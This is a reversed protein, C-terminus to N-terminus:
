KRKTGTINSEGYELSLMGELEDGKITASFDIVMDQGGANITVTFSLDNDKFKLEEMDVEEGSSGTFKGILADGEVTFKFVFAYTGGETEVDWTGLLADYQQAKEGASFSPSFCFLFFVGIM